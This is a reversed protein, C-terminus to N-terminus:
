GSDPLPPPTRGARILARLTTRWSLSTELGTLTHGPLLYSYHNWDENLIAGIYSNGRYVDWILDNRYRFQYTDGDHVQTSCTFPPRRRRYRFTPSLFFLSLVTGVQRYAAPQRMHNM